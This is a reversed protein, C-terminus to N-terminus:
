AHLAGARAAIREVVYPPAAGGGLNARLGHTLQDLAASLEADDDGVIEALAADMAIVKAERGHSDLCWTKVRILQAITVDLKDMLAADGGGTLPDTHAIQGSHERRAESRPAMLGLDSFVRTRIDFVLQLAARIELLATIPDSPM